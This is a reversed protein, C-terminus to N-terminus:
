FTNRPCPAIYYVRYNYRLCHVPRLIVGNRFQGVYFRIIENQIEVTPFDDPIIVDLPPRGRSLTYEKMKLLTHHLFDTDNIFLLTNHFDNDSAASLPWTCRTGVGLRRPSVSTHAVRIQWCLLRLYDNAIVDVSRKRDRLREVVTKLARVDVTKCTTM